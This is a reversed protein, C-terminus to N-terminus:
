IIFPTICELLGLRLCEEPGLLDKALVLYKTRFKLKKVSAPWEPKIKKALVANLADRCAQEFSPLGFCSMVKQCAAVKVLRLLDDEEVVAWEPEQPQLSGLM